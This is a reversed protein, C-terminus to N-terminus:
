TNMHVVNNCDDRRHPADIRAHVHLLARQDGPRADSTVSTYGGALGAERAQSYLEAFHMFQQLSYAYM